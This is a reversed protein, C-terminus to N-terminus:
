NNKVGSEKICSFIKEAHVAHSAKFLIIEDKIFNNLIQKATIEPAAIDSNILIDTRSMGAEYAGEAIFEAYEGFAYLKRFKHKVVARGIMNHLEKTQSGLELMDGLMCSKFPYGAGSILELDAIVAEPSSSYTDDYVTIGNIRLIKARICDESVSKLAEITDCRKINLLEFTGICCAVSSLIHRGPIAIRQNKIKYEKTIIDSMSGSNDCEKINIFCNASPSNLSYTYENYIGRLLKEEHPVILLPHEMGDTIELKAKAIAERSGLNGIHSTGVNTIISINPKIAASMRSIEGVHNMGLEAVLIETNVPASFITHAMGLYNNYNGTTSHVTYVTSLMKALINKTTTKGVSGTVAVTKTLYPLNNKYSGAIQLLSLLTNDSKFDANRDKCSLIYAGRSRAEETFDEGNFKEGCIAIFLDGPMVEKSDTTIASIYKGNARNPLNMAAAVDNFSLLLHPVIRM